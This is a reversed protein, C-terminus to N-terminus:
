PLYYCFDFVSDKFRDVTFHKLVVNVWVGGEFRM